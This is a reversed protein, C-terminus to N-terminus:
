SEAEQELEERVRDVCSKLREESRITMEQHESELRCDGMALSPDPLIPYDGIHTTGTKALREHDDTALHINVSGARSDMRSLAEVVLKELQNPNLTLEAHIVRRAVQEVLACLNDTHDRMEQQRLAELSDQISHLSDLAPTFMARGEKEGQSLGEQYGAKFGQSKGEALGQELGQELGREQGQKFGEEFGQPFPDQEGRDRAELAALPQFRYRRYNGTLKEM